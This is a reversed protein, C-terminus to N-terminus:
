QKEYTFRKDCYSLTLSDTEVSLITYEGVATHERVLVKNGEMELLGVKYRHGSIEGRYILTAPKTIPTEKTLDVQKINNARQKSKPKGASASRGSSRLFPDRYDFSLEYKVTDSMIEEIAPLFQSIADRDSPQYDIIKWIILGWIAVVLPIMIYLTKKNKM